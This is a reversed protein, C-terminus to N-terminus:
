IFSTVAPSFSDFNYGNKYSNRFREASAAATSANSHAHLSVVQPSLERAIFWRYLEKDSTTQIMTQIMTQVHLQLTDPM